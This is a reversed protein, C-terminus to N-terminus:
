RISPPKRFQCCSFYSFIRFINHISRFTNFIYSTSELGGKHIGTFVDGPRPSDNLANVPIPGLLETAACFRRRYPERPRSEASSGGRVWTRGELASRGPYQRNMIDPRGSSFAPPELHSRENGPLLNQVRQM